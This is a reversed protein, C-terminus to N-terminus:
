DGHKSLTFKDVKSPPDTFPKTLGYEIIEFRYSAFKFTNVNGYQEIYEKDIDSPGYDFSRQYRLHLLNNTYTYKDLGWFSEFKVRPKWDGKGQYIEEGAPHTKFHENKYYPKPISFIDRIKQKEKSYIYKFISTINIKSYYTKNIKSNRLDGWSAIEISLNINLNPINFLKEILEFDGRFQAICYSQADMGRSFDFKVEKVYYLNIPDEQIKPNKYEIIEKSAYKNMARKFIKFKWQFDDYWRNFDDFFKKTPYYSKIKRNSHWIEDYPEVEKFYEDKMKFQEFDDFVYKQKDIYEKEYKKALKEDKQEQTEEKCRSSILPLTLSSLSTILLLLKKM